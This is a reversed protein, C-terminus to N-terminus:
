YSYIKIRPVHKDACERYRRFYMFYGTRKSQLCRMFGTDDWQQPEPYVTRYEELDRFGALQFRYANEVAPSWGKPRVMGSPKRSLHREPGIDNTTPERIESKRREPGPNGSKRNYYSEMGEEIGRSIETRASSSMNGSDCREERAGSLYQMSNIPQEKMISRSRSAANGRISM